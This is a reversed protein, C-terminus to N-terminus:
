NNRAGENIWTKIVTITSDPLYPGGQPMRDGFPPTLSLKKILISNDANGAVVAPGHLGGALLQAVTGVSLGGSGGHCGTCGYTSFIPLVKGSFSVTGGSQTPPTNVNTDPGTSNDSCGGVLIGGALLSAKWFRWVNTMDSGMSNGVLSGGGPGHYVLVRVPAGTGVSAVPSRGSLCM